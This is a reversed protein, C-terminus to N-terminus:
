IYRHAAKGADIAELVLLVTMIKTVSAPPLAEDANKEYLVTGSSAEMLLLSTADSNEQYEAARVPLATLVVAICLWLLLAKRKM